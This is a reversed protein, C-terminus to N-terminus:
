QKKECLLMVWPFPTAVKKIEFFRSILAISENKNWFNLHEKNKGIRSINKLRLVNCWSFWPENPVSIVCYKKTVRNLEKLGKKPESLHELIELALVLDFSDAKFPIEEILGKKITMEPAISKATKLANESKDVGFIESSKFQNKLKQITFGEGCAADLVLKPKELDNLILNLESYFNNLFWIVVPNKSKYKQMNQSLKKMIDFQIITNM